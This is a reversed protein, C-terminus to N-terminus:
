QQSSVLTLFSKFNKGKQFVVNKINRRRIVLAGDLFEDSLRLISELEIIIRNLEIVGVVDKYLSFMLRPDTLGFRIIIQEFTQNALSCSSTVIIVRKYLKILPLVSTTKGTGLASDIAMVTCNALTKVLLDTPIYRDDKYIYDATPHVLTHRPDFTEVDSNEEDLRVNGREIGLAGDKNAGSM